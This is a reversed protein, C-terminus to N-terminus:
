CCTDDTCCDDIVVDIGCCGTGPMDVEKVRREDARRRGNM